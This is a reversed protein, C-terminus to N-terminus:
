DRGNSVEDLENELDSIKEELGEIKNELTSRQKDEEILTNELCELLYLADKKEFSIVIDGLLVDVKGYMEKVEINDKTDVTIDIKM